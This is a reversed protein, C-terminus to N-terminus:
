HCWPLPHKEGRLCKRTILPKEPNQLMVSREVWKERLTLDGEGCCLIPPPPPSHGEQAQTHTSPQEPVPEGTVRNPPSPFKESQRLVEKNQLELLCVNYM